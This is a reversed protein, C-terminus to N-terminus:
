PTVEWDKGLVGGRDGPTTTGYREAFVPHLQRDGPVSMWTRILHRPQQPNDVFATRDHLVSHNHVFQMDGVELEMTAHLLADNCVEDFADLAERQRPSPQPAQDFRQASNIYQRQYIVTLHGDWWTLVPISFWPKHGAPIEGRRDTAVPAFLEDVLDGYRAVVTHYATRASVVLSQGGQRAKRLALLGVADTSDTHFTQRESTQYLRVDPDVAQAGTNRVHGVLDGNANQHRLSGLHASIALMASTARVPGLDDVPLGRIVEFGRGSLLNHKLSRLQGALSPLPPPNNHLQALAPRNTADVADAAAALQDVQEDSLTWRWGDDLTDVTWGAPVQSPEPVTFPVVANM